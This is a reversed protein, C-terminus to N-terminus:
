STSETEAAREALMREVEQDTLAGIAMAADAIGAADVDRGRAVEEVQAALRSITQAHFVASMPLGIPIVDNIRAVMQGAVLSHGGINFFNDHIGVRDLALVELWIAAILREVPTTPEVFPEPTICESAPLRRRDVRGDSGRPVTALPVFLSPMLNSPLRSSLDASLAEPEARRGARAVIYAVLRQTSGDYTVAADAVTPHLRVAAEVEDVDVWGGRVEVRARPPGTAILLGAPELRLAAIRTDPAALAADLLARYHQLMVPVAPEEVLETDYEISATFDGDRDAVTFTLDFMAERYPLALTRGHIPGLPVRAGAEGIAAAALGAEAFEPVQHLVFMTQFFPTRSLDRAPQLREVLLAFPFAQHALAGTVDRRVREVLGEFTPDGSVDALLVVPNAFYGVAAAADAADRGATPTGVAFSEQRTYRALLAEYAALLVVFPTVGRARAYDLVRASRARTLRGRVVAGRHTAVAPRQRNSPLVLAPPPTVLRQRWYRWLREGRESALLAHERRAFPAFSPAPSALRTPTGRSALELLAGLEGVLVALSWFDIVAHHVTLLLVSESSPLRLVLLRALPGRELRFPRRIAQVLRERLGADDASALTEVAIAPPESTVRQVLGHPTPAFVTRLATHRDVVAEWAVRLLEPDLGAEIRLGAAITYAVSDPALQHLFFLARQGYTAPVDDAEPDPTPAHPAAAHDPPCRTAAVLEGRVTAAFAAISTDGVDIPLPLHAGFRREAAHALEVRGLSDLGLCTLPQQPDVVSAALGVRKAVFTTLWGEIQSATPVSGPSAANRRQRNVVEPPEPRDDGRSADVAPGRTWDTTPALAGALLRARCTGRRLKGSTTKPVGGPPLLVVRAPALDHERAVAGCIAAVITQSDDAHREIEAVVAVREGGGDIDIDRDDGSPVAFAVCAAPRVAPHCSEVTWEIDQPHLNHGRVIILDKARGAVFLEGDCLFGLDGTRLYPGGAAAETPQPGAGADALRAAFTHRTEDPRNWYGQCVSPGALWIEGVRDLPCLEHTEPDVIAVRLGEAVSGCGVLHRVAEAQASGAVRAPRVVGQGLASTELHQVHAAGTRSGTVLLTAEALGYCPLFARSQFGHAAFRAVFRELTGARVPEAGNFAVEWSSLDIGDMEDPRIRRTCLDYAFNPGGSTTAGYRSIAQLWRSPRQLFANPSMLVSMAGAYLPQLLTGILGMDHFLPLWSVVISRESLDFARRIAEENHLLNAHTVIVGRPDSTSGSTYQLLAITSASLAPGPRWGWWGCCAPRWAAIRRRRRGAPRRGAAGSAITEIRVPEIPLTGSRENVHDGFASALPGNTLVLRTRTDRVVAALREAYRHGRPAAVPVAPMGAYLCGLFATLFEGSTTAPVLVPEGPRGRELLAAAIAAARTDIEGFSLRAGETEGDKLSISALRGPTDAARDRLLDVFTSHRSM